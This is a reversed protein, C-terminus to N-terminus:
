YSCSGAKSFDTFNIVSVFKPEYKLFVISYNPCLEVMTRSGGVAVDVVLIVRQCPLFAPSLTLLLWSFLKPM